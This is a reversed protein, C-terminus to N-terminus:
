KTSVFWLAISDLLQDGQVSPVLKGRRVQRRQGSTILHTVLSLMFYRTDLVSHCILSLHRPNLTLHLPKGGWEISPVRYEVREKEGEVRKREGM